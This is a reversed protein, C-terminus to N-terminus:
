FAVTFDGLIETGPDLAAFAADLDADYTWTAQDYPQATHAREGLRVLGPYVDPILLAAAGAGLLYAM